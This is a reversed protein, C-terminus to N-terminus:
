ISYNSLMAHAIAREFYNGNPRINHIDERSILTRLIPQLQTGYVQLCEKPHIGPWSYCSVVYRRHECSVFDPLSEYVPDNPAFIYTDLNGQPIGEIGKVYKIGAEYNYPDVSLDLIVAHQPLHSIWANPIIALSPDPRATADVLIDTDVLIKRMINEHSTIDYDIARVITGPVGSTALDKHLAADGYQVAAQVVQRGLSGTGMLTVRIPSRKPHKFGPAPYTKQLVRFAVAIGNWAVAQMNEILRRDSDDTIADLSIAELGLDRLLNVRQPRTPFHLMSILCAGPQMNRLDNVDPCRLVLVYEQQFATRRDVFQMQPAANLYDQATFNMGAGYGEESVIIVRYRKLFSMLSPLFDRKEGHEKHMQPFGIQLFTRKKNKM